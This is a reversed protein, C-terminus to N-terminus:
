QDCTVKKKALRKAEIANVAYVVAGAIIFSYHSFLRWILMAWFVGDSGMASFVLYFAGEAAGANGPTPVLTISAYIYITSCFIPLFRVSAGFMKLVFFPMACLAVRFILSLLILCVSTLKDRTIVSISAQYSNLMEMVRATTEEPNKVIKFRACLRIVSAVLKEVTHPMLSFLVLLCPVLAFLVLGVYATYRIAELEVARWTIFTILAIIVFGAQATIYGTITMASAGGDSYGHKHLWWIQFPQGGAGSPTICDYYKGLIATELAVRFSVREKLSRMMLVYKLAEACLVVALCGATCALFFVAEKTFRLNIAGPPKGAFEHIAAWAIVGINILIFLITWIRNRRKKKTDTKEGSEPIPGPEPKQIFGLKQDLDPKQDLEPKQDLRPNRGSVPKQGPESTKGYGPTKNKEPRRGTQPKKKAKKM